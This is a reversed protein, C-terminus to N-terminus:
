AGHIEIIKRARYADFWRLYRALTNPSAYRLSGCFRIIAERLMWFPLSAVSKNFDGGFILVLEPRKNFTGGADM